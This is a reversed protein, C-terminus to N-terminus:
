RIAGPTDVPQNPEDCIHYLLRTFNLCNKQKYRVELFYSGNNMDKMTNNRRDCIVNWQEIRGPEVFDNHLIENLGDAFAERHLESAWTIGRSNLGEQILKTIDALLPKSNVAKTTLNFKIM